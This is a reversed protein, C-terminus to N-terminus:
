NPPLCFLYYNIKAELIIFWLIKLVDNVKFSSLAM